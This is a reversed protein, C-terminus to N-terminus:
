SGFAAPRLQDLHALFKKGNVEVICTKAGKQKVLFGRVWKSKSDTHSRIWVNQGPHFSRMSTHSRDFNQKQLNQKREVHHATCPHVLHLITRIPRGLFLEAPSLGTTSHPSSRYALLFRNLKCISTTQDSADLLMKTLANKFTQVSREALGNSQPHYTPVLTHLIGVSKLFSSFESSTLQPGNDSVIELPFGYRTFLRQLADITNASTTSPMKIVELWKSFSDVVILYQGQDKQAFDIHIREWPAKPWIWSQLPTTPPLKATMQCAVCHSAMEEIDQDLKPWWIHCRAVAKMKSIGPHTDHLLDLMRKRHVDPIIVRM